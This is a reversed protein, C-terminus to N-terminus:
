RGGTAIGFQKLILATVDQIRPAQPHIKESSFLVGPVVDPDVCHDGIWADNNDEILEEPTQGLATQWSARYGSAYGVILDPAVDRNEPAPHTRHVSEIVRRGNIPDRWAMLKGSIAALLDDKQQKKTSLYLGNLGISYAYKDMKQQKLWTNLHVARDFTTFGHDSLIILKADPERRRVRGVCEDVERYVKLLEDDHKGWLMHSNLDVSSFYFFLFGSKFQRLSYDLLRSEEGFVLEAQQRFEALSLVERAASTDEPIGLTSYPGIETEIDASWGAPESIPLAPAGPDVNVPSVYVELGPHLQKAYVRVMGRVSSVHPILTFEVKLWGSWEGQRILIAQEGLKIRAVDNVPDVDLTMVASTVAHDKRLPNAPGEILLEARGNSVQTKVIRGGAVLRGTEVPDDTFFTFTGLSGNLDPVGMGSLARGAREPAYNIPMHQVIAPIDKDALTRWFPTGHRLTHVRGSSLPILYPGLPLVFRPDDTKSMSSFLARTKPERHVFDYIGHQDPDLGTIFTSWAVPSQPPYTTRLRGFYGTDRLAKLNALAEWHREVFAPDMGDIGLVIVKPLKGGCGCLMITLCVLLSRFRLRSLGAGVVSALSFWWLWPQRRDLKKEVTTGGMSIRLVGTTAGEVHVQWVMQRDAQVYVPPEDVRIGAPAELRARDESDKLQVTVLTTEGPRLPAHGFFSDMAYLLLGFPVLLILLPRAILLLIRGNEVILDRQARLVLRPEEAFLQIELLHALIRNATQRFRERDTWRQFVRLSVIGSIAGLVIVWIFSNV